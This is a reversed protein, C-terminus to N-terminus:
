HLLHHNRKNYFVCVRFFVNTNNNPDKNYEKKQTTSQNPDPLFVLVIIAMHKCKAHLWYPLVTKIENKYSFVNLSPSIQCYTWLQFTKSSLFNFPTYQPMYFTGPLPFSTVRPHYFVSSQLSKKKRMLAHLKRSPPFPLHRLPLLRNNIQM